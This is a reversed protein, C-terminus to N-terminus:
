KRDQPRHHSCLWEGGIKMLDFDARTGASDSEFVPYPRAGCVSCKIGAGETPPAIDVEGNDNASDHMTEDDV